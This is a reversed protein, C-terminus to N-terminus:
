NFFFTGKSGTEKELQKVVKEMEKLQSKGFSKTKQFSAKIEQLEKKAKLIDDANFTYNKQDKVCFLMPEYMSGYYKKAQVGSSDYYWAIRSLIEMKDRLYIDFYPMFQTSTMVYM